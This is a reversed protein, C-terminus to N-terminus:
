PGNWTSTFFLNLFLGDSLFCQSSVFVSRKVGIRCFCVNFLLWPAFRTHTHIHTHHRVEVIETCGHSVLHQKHPDIVAVQVLANPKRDRGLAVLDNCAASLFLLLFVSGPPLAPSSPPVPSHNFSSLFPSLHSFIIRWSVYKLSVFWVVSYWLHHFCELSYSYLLVPPPPSYNGNGTVTTVRWLDAGDWFVLPAFHVTRGSAASGFYLSRKSIYIFYMCVAIYFQQRLLQNLHCGPFQFEEQCHSIVKTPAKMESMLLLRYGLKWPCRPLATMGVRIVSGGWM